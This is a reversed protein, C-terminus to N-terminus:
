RRTTRRYAAIESRVANLAGFGWLNAPEIDDDTNASTGEDPPTFENFQHLILFTPRLKRAYAMFADLTVYQGDKGFRPAVDPGSWGNQGMTAISVTLNEVRGDVRNFTPDALRDVWSWLGTGQESPQADLFGAMLRFTFREGLAPHGRLFQTVQPRLVPVAGLYILMLPKGRYLVNREPYKRLLTAFYDIEKEFATKGDTDKILANQDIAGLLPVIALRTGLKTWAPYLNGTNDRISQYASRFTPCGNFKQLYRQVFWESDFICSVNNTLDVIAADVDMRELWAVHQAIVRPDASDYGGGISQMDSSQLIPRAATGQFTVANPGFWAEYEMAVIHSHEDVVLPGATSRQAEVAAAMPARPASMESTCATTVMLTLLAVRM